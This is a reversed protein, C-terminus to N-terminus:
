LVRRPQCAVDAIMMAHNSVDAAEYAVDEPVMGDENRIARALESAERQLLALLSELSNDEWGGKHANLLLKREMRRYFAALPGYEVGFRPYRWEVTKGLRWALMIERATSEGIYGEPNVVYIGHSIRIKNQHLADFATKQDPTFGLGDAHMFGGVSMTAVGRQELELLARSTEDKFRTSGCVTIVQLAQAPARFGDRTVVGGHNPDESVRAESVEPMRDLVEQALMECSKDGFECTPAIDHIARELAERADHFEIDRDPGEVPIFVEFRFNHLHRERLYARHEPAMPWRHWGPQETAVRVDIM